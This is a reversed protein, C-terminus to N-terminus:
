GWEKKNSLANRVCDDGQVGFIGIDKVRQALPIVCNDFFWIEGSDSLHPSQTSAYRSKQTLFSFSATYLHLCVSINDHLIRSSELQFVSNCVMSLSMSMPDFAPM